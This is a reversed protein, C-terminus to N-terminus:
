QRQYNSRHGRKTIADMARIHARAKTMAKLGRANAKTIAEISWARM